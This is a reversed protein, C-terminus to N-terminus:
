NTSTWSGVRQTMTQVTERRWPFTNPIRNEWVFTNLLLLCCREWSLIYWEQSESLITPPLKKWFYSLPDIVPCTRLANIIAEMSYPSTWEVRDKKWCIFYRRPRSTKQGFLRPDLVASVMGWTQPKLNQKVVDESYEPVNELIQVDFQEKHVMKYHSQHAMYSIDMEQLQKGMTSYAVCPPGLHGCIINNCNSILQKNWSWAVIFASIDVHKQNTLPPGAVNVKM